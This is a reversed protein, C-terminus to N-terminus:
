RGTRRGDPKCAWAEMSARLFGCCRMPGGGVWRCHPCWSAYFEILCPRDPPLGGLKEAWNKETLDVATHPADWFEDGSAIGLGLALLLLCARAARRGRRMAAQSSTM